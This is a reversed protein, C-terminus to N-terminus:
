TRTRSGTPGRSRSLGSRRFHRRKLNLRADAQPRCFRSSLNIDFSMYASRPVPASTATAERPERNTTASVSVPLLVELLLELLLELLPDPGSQLPAAAPSPTMQGGSWVITASVMTPTVSAKPRGVVMATVPM